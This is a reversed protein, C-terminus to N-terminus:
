APLSDGPFGRAPHLEYTLVRAEIAPDGDMLERVYDGAGAFVGVGALEGGDTVPCVISLIEAARLAVKRRGHAWIIPLSEEQFTRENTKLIVLTYERARSRIENFQEDTIVPLQPGPM